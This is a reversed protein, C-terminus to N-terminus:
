LKILILLNLGLLTDIIRKCLSFFFLIIVTICWKPHHLILRLVLLMRLSIRISDYGRSSGVCSRYRVVDVLRYQFHDIRTYKCRLSHCGRSGIRMSYGRLCSVVSFSLRPLLLRLLHVLGLNIRCGFCYSGIDVFHCGGKSIRRFKPLFKSM